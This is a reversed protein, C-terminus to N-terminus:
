KTYNVRWFDQWEERRDFDDLGTTSDYGFLKDSVKMLGSPEDDPMKIDTVICDVEGLSSASLAAEASAFLETQYRRLRLMQGISM